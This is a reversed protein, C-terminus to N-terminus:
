KVQAKVLLRDEYNESGRGGHEEFCCSLYDYSNREELTERVGHSRGGSIRSIM